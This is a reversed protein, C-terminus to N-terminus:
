KSVWENNCVTLCFRMGNFHVVRLIIAYLNAHLHVAINVIRRASFVNCKYHNTCHTQKTGHKSKNSRLKFQQNTVCVCVMWRVNTNLRCGLVLFVYGTWAASSYICQFAAWLDRKAHSCLSRRHFLLDLIYVCICRFSYIFSLVIVSSLFLFILM